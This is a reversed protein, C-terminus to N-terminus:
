QNTFPYSILSSKNGYTMVCQPVEPTFLPRSRCLCEPIKGLTTNYDCTHLVTNHMAMCIGGLGVWWGMCAGIM